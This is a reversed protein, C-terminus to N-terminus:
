DCGPASKPPNLVQGTNCFPRSESLGTAQRLDCLRSTASGPDEDLSGMRQWKGSYWGTTEKGRSVGVSFAM